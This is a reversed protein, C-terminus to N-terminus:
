PCLVTLRMINSIITFIVSSSKHQFDQHSCYTAAWDGRKGTDGM